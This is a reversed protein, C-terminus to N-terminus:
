ISYSFLEAIHKAESLMDCFNVVTDLSSNTSFCFNRTKETYYDTDFTLIYNLGRVAVDWDNKSVTTGCLSLSYSDVRHLKPIFKDFVDIESSFAIFGLNHVCGVWNDIVKLIGHLFMEKFNNDYYDRISFLKDFENYICDMDVESTHMDIISYYIHESAKFLNIDYTKFSKDAEDIAESITVRYDNWILEREM